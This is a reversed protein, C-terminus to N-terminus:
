SFFHSNLWSTLFPVTGLVMLGFSVIFLVASALCLTEPTTGKIKENKRISAKAFSFTLFSAIASTGCAIYTLPSKFSAILTIPVAVIFLMVSFIFFGYSIKYNRM